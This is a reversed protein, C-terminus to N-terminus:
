LLDLVEHLIDNGKSYSDIAEGLKNAAETKGLESLKEKVAELEHTHDHNHAHLHEILAMIKEPDEPVHHSHHKNDDHSHM